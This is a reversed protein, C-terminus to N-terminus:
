QSLLRATELAFHGATVVLVIGSNALLEGPTSAIEVGARRLEGLKHAFEDDGSKVDYGKVPIGNRSIGTAFHTGVTGLGIVSVM